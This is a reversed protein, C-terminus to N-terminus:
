YKHEDHEKSRVGCYGTFITYSHYAHCSSCSGGQSYWCSNGITTIVPHNSGVQYRRDYEVGLRDYTDSSYSTGGAVDSLEKESLEDNKKNEM